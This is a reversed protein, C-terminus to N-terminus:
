RCRDYVNLIREINDLEKLLQAKQTKDFPRIRRSKEIGFCSVPKLAEIVYEFGIMVKEDYSLDIM